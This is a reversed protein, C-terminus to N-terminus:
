SCSCGNEIATRDEPLTLLFIDFVEEFFVTALRHVILQLLLNPILQLHLFIM